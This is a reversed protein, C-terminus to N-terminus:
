ECPAPPTNPPIYLYSILGTLDGIDILNEVDGDINAADVCLPETNPPIYLYSILATLDGIDVLDGEDGDLNGALGQCCSECANGIGDQDDDAQNTNAVTICNDCSDPITDADM